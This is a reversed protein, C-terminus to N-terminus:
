ITNCVLDVLEWQLWLMVYFHPLVICLEFSFSLNCFFTQRGPATRLATGELRWDYYHARFVSFIEARCLSNGTHHRAPTITLNNSQDVEM